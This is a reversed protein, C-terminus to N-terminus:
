WGPKRVSAVRRGDRSRRAMKHEGGLQGCFVGPNPSVEEASREPVIAVFRGEFNAEGDGVCPCQHVAEYEFTSFGLVKDAVARGHLLDHLLDRVHSSPEFGSTFHLSIGIKQDVPRLSPRYAGGRSISRRLDLFPPVAVLPLVAWFLGASSRRERTYGLYGPTRSPACPHSSKVTAINVNTAYRKMTPPRTSFADRRVRRISISCAGPPSCGPYM